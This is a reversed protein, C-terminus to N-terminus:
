RADGLVMARGITQRDDDADFAGVLRGDVMVLIRDSLHQLEDLEESLLLVAGGGARYADLITHIAAIGNLDVGRTPQCVLLLPPATAIERAFVVRQQNGGSLSGVADEPRGFVVSLRAMRELALRRLAGRRLWLRSGVPRTRHSGAVANEAISAGLALGEHKRDPSIYGIGCRRRGAADLASVDAGMLAV